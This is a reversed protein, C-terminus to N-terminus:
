IWNLGHFDKFAYLLFIEACVFILEKDTQQKKVSFSCVSFPAWDWWFMSGVCLHVHPLLFLAIAWDYNDHSGSHGM